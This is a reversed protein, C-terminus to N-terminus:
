KLEFDHQGKIKGAEVFMRYTVNTTLSAPRSGAVAPKLGRINQGYFFSKVPVSNSDSVLHWIPLVNHNTQWEELTVVEVSTLRFSSSLGFILNPIARASPFRTRMVRTTHFIQMTHPRFWDTFFIMYVVMLVIATVVLSINKLNM